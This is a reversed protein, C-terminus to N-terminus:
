SQMVTGYVYKNEGSNPFVVQLILTTHICAQAVAQM